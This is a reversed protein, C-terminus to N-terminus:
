PRATSTPLLRGEQQMHWRVKPRLDPAAPRPPGVAGADLDVDSWRLGPVTSTGSRPSAPNLSPRHGSRRSHEAGSPRAACRLSRAGAAPRVATVAVPCLGLQVLSALDFLGSRFPPSCDPWIRVPREVAGCRHSSSGPPRVTRAPHRCPGLSGGAASGRVSPCCDSLHARRRRHRDSRVQRTGCPTSRRTTVCALTKRPPSWARGRIRWARSRRPCSRSRDQACALLPTKLAVPGVLPASHRQPSVAALLPWRLKGPPSATLSWSAPTLV